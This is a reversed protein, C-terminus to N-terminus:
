IIVTVTYITQSQERVLILFLKSYETLRINRDNIFLSYM